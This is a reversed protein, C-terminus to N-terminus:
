QTFGRGKKARGPIEVPSPMERAAKVRDAGSATTHKHLDAAIQAASLERQVKLKMSTDALKVKAQEITIQHTAAYDMTALDRKLALEKMNYEFEAKAKEAQANVYVTDRDTDLKVRLSATENRLKEITLRTDADLQALEKEMAADQQAEQAAAQLKKEEMAMKIQAVQVAPLPPPPTADMKAQEETSYQFEAPNLRKSRALAAFWKKPNVGFIPKEALPTMQAITQDQIAREVLAVSGHADIKFDQKEDDPVDADLLNWEYYM